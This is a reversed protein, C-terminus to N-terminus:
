RKLAATVAAVVVVNWDVPLNDTIDDAAANRSFHYSDRMCIIRTCIRGM